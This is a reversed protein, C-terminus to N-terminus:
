SLSKPLRDESGRARMVLMKDGLISTGSDVVIGNGFLVAKLTWYITTASKKVFSSGMERQVDEIKVIVTGNRNTIQEKFWTVYPAIADAYREHSVNGVIRPMRKLPTEVFQIEPQTM